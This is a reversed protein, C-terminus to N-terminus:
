ERVRQEVVKGQFFKANRYIIIPILLFLIIITISTLIWQIDVLLWASEHHGMSYEECTEPLASNDQGGKCM